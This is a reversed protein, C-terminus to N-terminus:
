REAKMETEASAAASALTGQRRRGPSSIKTVEVKIPEGARARRLAASLSPRRTRAAGRTGEDVFVVGEREGLREMIWKVQGNIEDLKEDLSVAPAAQAVREVTVAIEPEAQAAKRRRLNEKLEEFSLKQTQALGTELDALDKPRNLLEAAALLGKYEEWGLLVAKPKGQNTIVFREGGGQVTESLTPLDRRAETISKFQEAM